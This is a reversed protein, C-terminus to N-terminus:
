CTLCASGAGKTMVSLTQLTYLLLAVLRKVYLRMRRMESVLGANHPLAQALCFIPGHFSLRVLCRSERAYSRVDVKHPIRRQM